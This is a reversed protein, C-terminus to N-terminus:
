SSTLCTTAATSERVILESKLVIDDPMRQNGPWDRLLQAARRGIERRPTRVTTLPPTFTASEPVDDYCVIGIDEPVSLGADELACIVEMAKYDTDVFFAEPLDGGDIMERAASYAKGATSSVDRVHRARIDLGAEQMMSTFVYFKPSIPAHTYSKVGIFGIKQYGCGILHGVAMAASGPQDYHVHPASPTHRTNGLVVTPINRRLVDEVFSQDIERPSIILVADDESLDRLDERTMSNTCIIETERRPLVDHLGDFKDTMIFLTERRCRALATEGVVAWLKTIRRTGGSRARELADAEIYTGSGRQQRVIGRNQLLEYGRGVTIPSIGLSRALGMHPPLKEGPALQGTAIAECVAEAIRRYLPTDNRDSIRLQV